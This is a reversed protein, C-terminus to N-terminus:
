SRSYDDLQKKEKKSLSGIGKHKIKELIRDIEEQESRQRINYRDDMTLQEEQSRKSILIIDPKYVMILILATAPLLIALIPLWNTTIIGPFMMLAMIMGILAGGLHAAHGVDTRGSRIAYLTIAVYGIGFLWSPIFLIQTQPFLAITAFVLGSIAGSAGVSSYSPQHKHMLLALFNGGVMSVLFIILMRIGGVSQELGSGFGFLVIMNIILHMWSVHIFGSSIFRIYDKNRSVQNINFAFRYRFQENKIGKYSIVVTFIILFLTLYM